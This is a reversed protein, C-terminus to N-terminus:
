KRIYFPKTNKLFYESIGGNKHDIQIFDVTKNKHYKEAIPGAENTIEKRDGDIDLAIMIHPLEESNDMKVAALYAAKVTEKETFLKKLANVLDNPYEAPQGIQIKTEEEIKMENSQDFISGNLLREIENPILEKGYDSYPNLILTAGKTIEFLNQGKLAMFPVEEKIFGKDFIRNTSTFIPIKGDEFTVFKVSTNEELIQTGKKDTKDTLVILDNWLLKMYFEDRKSSNTSAQYLTKELENEPFSNEIKKKKFIDFLGM